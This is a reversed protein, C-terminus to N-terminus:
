NKTVITWIDLIRALSEVQGLSAYTPIGLLCNDKSLIAAGGSNGQEVKASTIFYNGDFGSIIGETATVSNTSGIEPYGLVVVTDGLSPKQECFQLPYSAVEELNKDPNNITLTGWDYESVSIEIDKPVVSFINESNPFKIDCSSLEYLNPSILVHRNTLIKIPSNELKLIVGSGKSKYNLYSNKLISSCEIYVVRPQWEKIISSLDKVPTTKSLKTELNNIKKQALQEQTKRKSEIVQRLMEEQELKKQIEDVRGESEFRLSDIEKKLLSIEKNQGALINKMEENQFAINQYEFYTLFIGATLFLLALITVSKFSINFVEENDM